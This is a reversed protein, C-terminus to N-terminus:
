EHSTYSACSPSRKEFVADMIGIPADELTRVALRALALRLEDVFVEQPTNVGASLLQLQRSIDPSLHRYYNQLFRQTGGSSAARRLLSLNYSHADPSAPTTHPITTSAILAPHDTSIDLYYQHHLQCEICACRAGSQNASDCCLLLVVFRAYFCIDELLFRREIRERRQGWSLNLSITSHHCVNGCSSIVFISSWAIPCSRFIEISEREREWV